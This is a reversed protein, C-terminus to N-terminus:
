SSAIGARIMAPASLACVAVVGVIEKGQNSHYFFDIFGYHLVYTLKEGVSFSNNAIKRFEFASTNNQFTFIGESANVEGITFISIVIIILNKM